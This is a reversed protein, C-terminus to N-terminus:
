DIPSFLGKPTARPAETDAFRGARHAPSQMEAQTEWLRCRQLRPFQGGDIRDCLVQHGVHWQSRQPLEFVEGANTLLTAVTTNANISIVTAVVGRSAPSDESSNALTAAVFGLTSVIGLMALTRRLTTTYTHFM